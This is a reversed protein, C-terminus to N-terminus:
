KKISLLLYQAMACWEANGMGVNPQLNKTLTLVAEAKATDKLMLYIRGASCGAEARIGAPLAADRSMEDLRAAAKPLEGANEWLYAEDLRIRNLMESPPNSAVILAFQEAAKPYANQNIYIRALRLRAFRAAPSDSYEALAKQLSAEDTAATLVNVAEQAASKRMQVVGFAIAVVVLVAVCVAILRKWHTFIIYEFKGFDGLMTDLIESDAVKKSKSM